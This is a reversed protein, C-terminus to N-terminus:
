KIFEQPDDAKYTSLPPLANPDVGTEFQFLDQV